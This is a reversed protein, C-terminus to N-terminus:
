VSGCHLWQASRCASKPSWSRVVDVDAPELHGVPRQREEVVVVAPVRDLDGVRQEQGGLLRRGVGGRGAGLELAEDLFEPCGPDRRRRGVSSSSRSMAVFGAHGVGDGVVDRAALRRDVDLVHVVGVELEQELDVRYVGARWRNVVQALSSFISM